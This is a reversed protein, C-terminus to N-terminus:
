QNYRKRFFEYMGYSVMGLASVSVLAAMAGTSTDDSTNVGGSSPLLEDYMVVNQVEGTDKIKFDISQAIKYGDPAITESLTYTEGVILNRIIHPESTSVM